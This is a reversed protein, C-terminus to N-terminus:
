NGSLARQVSNRVEAPSQYLQALAAQFTRGSVYPSCRRKSYGDPPPRREHRPPAHHQAALDAKRALNAACCSDSSAWHHIHSRGELISRGCIPAGARGPKERSDRSSPMRWDRASRSQGATERKDGKHLLASPEQPARSDPACWCAVRSLKARRIRLTQRNETACSWCLASQIGRRGGDRLQSKM